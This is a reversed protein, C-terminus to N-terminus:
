LAPVSPSVQVGDRDYRIEAEGIAAEDVTAAKWQACSAGVRMDGGCSAKTTEVVLTAIYVVGHAAIAQVPAAGTRVDAPLLSETADARVPQL